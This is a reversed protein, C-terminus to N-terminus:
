RRVEVSTRVTEVPEAVDDAPSGAARKGIPQKGVALPETPLTVVFRAGGGPRDTVAVTGRHWQVHRQVIALGLGVGPGPRTTERAFRAFIRERQAAPVGPGADDVQISVMRDSGSHDAGPLDAGPRVRVQLCGRGYNEANEVLNAIVRELRRKDARVLTEAAGPEVVTVRRGAADDAAERVLDGIRVPETPRADGSDDRSIEILDIVLRRFRNLDTDLLDVPERLAPPLEDARNRLLAMSNLMTTLPTRLEHSVDGAFRADAVVRRQLADAAHNFSRALGSLEPDHEDLRVGLDGGVFREAARTVARLPKFARRSGLRGVWLGLLSTIAAAAILTGSLVRFTHSLDDLTFLEFYSTQAPGLPVGVILVLRDDIKIRQRAAQGSAVMDRLEVPLASPGRSLGTAYWQGRYSLMSMAGQTMPLSDLAAPVSEDGAQLRDALMRAHDSAEVWASAERQGVLETTVLVWSMVALLASLGLAMLGFGLAVRDRLGLRIRRLREM